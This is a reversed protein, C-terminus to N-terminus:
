PVNLVAEVGAICVCARGLSLEQGMRLGICLQLRHHRQQQLARIPPCDVAALPASGRPMGAHLDHQPLAGEVGEAGLLVQLNPVLGEVHGELLVDGEVHAGGPGRLAPVHAAQM